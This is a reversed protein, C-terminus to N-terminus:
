PVSLERLYWQAAHGARSTQALGYGLAVADRQDDGDVPGFCCLAGLGVAGLRQEDVAIEVRNSRRARQRDESGTVRGRVGPDNPRGLLELEAVADLEDDADLVLVLQLGRELPEVGLEENEARVVLFLRECCTSSRSESTGAPFSAIASRSPIM